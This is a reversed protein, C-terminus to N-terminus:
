ARRLLRWGLALQALGFAFFAVDWALAGGPGAPWIHHLGLLWHSVVGDLAHFLGSGVLLGAALARPSRAAGSRWARWLLWVGLATALWMSAHFLGDALINADIRDTRASVMHHWQLLQHLVIGDLFGGLGFGLVAGALVLPRAAPAPVRAALAQRAKVSRASARRGRRAGAPM